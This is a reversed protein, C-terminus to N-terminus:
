WQWLGGQVLYVHNDPSCNQTDPKTHHVPEPNLTYSAHTLSIVSAIAIGLCTYVYVRVVVLCM